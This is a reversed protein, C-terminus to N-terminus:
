SPSSARGPPAPLPSAGRPTASRTTTASSSTSRGRSAVSPTSTRARAHRRRLDDLRASAEDASSRAEAVLGANACGHALVAAAAGVLAPEGLARAGALRAPSSACGNWRRAHLVRGDRPGAARGGGRALGPRSPRGPGRRAAARAPEHRGLFNECAACASTLRLRLAVDEDPVLELAELLTATCRALDGTSQQVRALKILVRLRAPRDDEPMLRLAAAYWRAAGAPARPASADGAECLLAIAARDGRVGSQEVHHARAVASAGQAALARAARAHATLRWGGKTTEYVARRVLPHRFAFRRPVDTDHLLRADLLDDLATVGAHPSLEAVAYALEPEFPDGAISASTLLLRADPALTEFEAVLAAAVMRPVGADLALRDGTSSHAPLSSTHALQLTYFPNGGSQAYIAARQAADFHEGALTSCDTESLPRLDIITVGPAALAASLKAPAMGSRYGLALLVRGSTPRRLLAALVESSAPDSWHLDDLMLVLPTSAAIM